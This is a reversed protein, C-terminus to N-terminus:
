GVMGSWVVSASDARRLSPCRSRWAYAFCCGM